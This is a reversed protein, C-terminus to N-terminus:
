TAQFAKIESEAEVIAVRTSASYKKRTPRVAKKESSM